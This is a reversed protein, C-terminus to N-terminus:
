KAVCGFLTQQLRPDNTYQLDEKCWNLLLSMGRWNRHTSAHELAKIAIQTMTEADIGRDKALIPDIFQKYLSDVSFPKKIFWNNSM